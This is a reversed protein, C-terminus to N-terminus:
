KDVVVTYSNASRWPMDCDNNDPATREMFIVNAVQRHKWSRPRFVTTRGGCDHQHWGIGISGDGNTGTYEIKGVVPGESRHEIITCGILKEFKDM